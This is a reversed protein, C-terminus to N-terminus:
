PALDELDTEFRTLDATVDLRRGTEADLLRVLLSEPRLVGASSIGLADFLGRSAGAGDAGQLWSLGADLTHQPGVLTSAVGGIRDRREYVTCRAGARQLICGAALGGLGGGIIAVPTM